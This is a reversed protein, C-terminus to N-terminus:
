PWPWPWGCSWPPPQCRASWDIPGVGAPLARAGIAPMAPVTSGLEGTYRPVRGLGGVQPAPVPVLKLLGQSDDWYANGDQDLSVRASRHGVFLWVSRRRFRLSNIGACGLRTRDLWLRLIRGRM